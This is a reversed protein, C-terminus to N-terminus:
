PDTTCSLDLVDTGISDEIFPMVSFDGLWERYLYATRTSGSQKVLVEFGPSAFHPMLSGIFPLSLVQVPAGGRTLWHTDYVEIVSDGANISHHAVLVPFPGAGRLVARFYSGPLTAALTLTAPPRFEFINLGQGPESALIFIHGDVVGLELQAAGQATTISAIETPAGTNPEVEAVHLTSPNLGAAGLLLSKDYGPVTVHGAKLRAGSATSDWMISPTASIPNAANLSGSPNTLDGFYVGFTAGYVPFYGFYRSTSDEYLAAVRGGAAVRRPLDIQQGFKLPQAGTAQVLMAALGSFNFSGPNGGQNYPQWDGIMRASAAGPAEAVDIANWGQHCDCLIPLLGYQSGGERGVIIESYPGPNAPNGALSARAFGWQTMVYLNNSEGGLSLDGSPPITGTGVPLHTSLPSGVVTGCDAHLRAGADSSMGGGTGTM